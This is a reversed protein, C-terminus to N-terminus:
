EDGSARAHDRDRDRDVTPAAGPLVVKASRSRLTTGLEAMTCVSTM